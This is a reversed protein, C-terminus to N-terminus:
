YYEHSSSSSSSSTINVFAPLAGLYRQQRNFNLASTESDCSSKDSGNKRKKQGTNQAVRSNIVSPRDNEVDVTCNCQQKDLLNKQRQM